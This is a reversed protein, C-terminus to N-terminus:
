RLIRRDGYRIGWLGTWLEASHLQGQAQMGKYPVLMAADIEGQVVRLKESYDLGQWWNGDMVVTHSDAGSRQALVLGLVAIIAILRM